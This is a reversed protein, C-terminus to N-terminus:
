SKDEFDIDVHSGDCFPKNKSAGCRCLSYHEPSPPRINSECVFKIGGVINYPGDAIIHLAPDRDIDRHHTEAISYSLAGSPCRNVVEIIEDVEANDPHIWPREGFRFVAPLLNVCEKAHSCITRNDHIIIRQGEYKREKNLPKDIQRDGSFDITKHSGDCFPKNKSTGCRCLHVESKCAVERGKSNQYAGLGTVRIPGNKLIEIVTESSM